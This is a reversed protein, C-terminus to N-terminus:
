WFLQHVFGSICAWTQRLLCPHLQLLFLFLTVSSVIGLVLVGAQMTSIIQQQNEDKRSFFLFAVSQIGFAFLVAALGIVVIVQNYASYDEKPLARSLYPSVLFNIFITIIQAVSFVLVKKARESM